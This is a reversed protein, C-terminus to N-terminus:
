KQQPPVYDPPLVSGESFFFDEMFKAIKTQAEKQWPM